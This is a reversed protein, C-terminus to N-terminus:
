RASRGREALIQREMQETFPLFPALSTPYFLACFMDVYVLSQTLSCVSLYRDRERDTERQRERQRDRNTKRQRERQRETDAQRDRLLM